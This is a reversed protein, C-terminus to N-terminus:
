GVHCARFPRKGERARVHCARFPRKGERARQEGLKETERGMLRRGHLNITGPQDFGDDVICFAEFCEPLLCGVRSSSVAGELPM